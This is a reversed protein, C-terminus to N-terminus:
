TYATAGKPGLNARCVPGGIPISDAEPLYADDEPRRGNV